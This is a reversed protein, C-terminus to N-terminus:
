IFLLTMPNGNADAVVHMSNTCTATVNVIVMVAPMVWPLMGDGVAFLLDACGGWAGGKCHLVNQSAVIM